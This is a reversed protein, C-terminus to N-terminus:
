NSRLSFRLRRGSGINKRNWKGPYTMWNPIGSPRRACSVFVDARVVFSGDDRKIKKLLHGHTPHEGLRDLTKVGGHGEMNSQGALLFVKVPGQFEQAPKGAEAQQALVGNTALSLGVVAAIVAITTKTNM